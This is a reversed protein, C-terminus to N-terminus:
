LLEFSKMVAHVIEKEYVRTRVDKKKRTYFCIYEKVLNRGAKVQRSLPQFLLHFYFPIKKKKSKQKRLQNSAVESLPLCQRCNEVTIGLRDAM